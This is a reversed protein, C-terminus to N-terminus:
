TQLNGLNYCNYKRLTLLKWDLAQMIIIYEYVIQKNASFMNRSHAYLYMYYIATQHLMGRYGSLCLCWMM